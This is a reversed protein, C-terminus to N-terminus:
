GIAVPFEPLLVLNFVGYTQGISADMESEMITCPIDQDYGFQRAVRQPNYPVTIYETRIVGRQIEAVRVGMLKNCDVMAAFDQAGQLQPHQSNQDISVLEDRKIYIYRAAEVLWGNCLLAVM